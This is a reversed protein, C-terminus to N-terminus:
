QSVSNQGNGCQKETVAKKHCSRERIGVGMPGKGLAGLESQSTGLRQQRVEFHHNGPVQGKGM